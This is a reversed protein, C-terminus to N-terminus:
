RARLKEKATGILQRLSLDSVGDRQMLLRTLPDGLLDELRPEIGAEAYPERHLTRRRPGRGAVSTIRDVASQCVGAELV